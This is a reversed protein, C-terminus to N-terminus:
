LQILKFIYNIVIVLACFIYAYKLHLYGKQWKFVLYAILLVFLLFIPILPPYVRFSEGLNGKLLEIGARQIGCGPCDFQTIKKFICPLQHQELWNIISLQYNIILTLLM